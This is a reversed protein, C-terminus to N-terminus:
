IYIYITFINYYFVNKYIFNWDIKSKHIMIYMEYFPTNDTFLNIIIIIIIIIYLFIYHNLYGYRNRLM